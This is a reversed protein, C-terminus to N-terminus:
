QIDVAPSFVRVSVAVQALERAQIELHGDVLVVKLQQVDDLAEEDVNELAQVRVITLKVRITISPRDNKAETYVDTLAQLRM